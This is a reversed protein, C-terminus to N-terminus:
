WAVRSYLRDSYGGTRNARNHRVEEYRIAGQRPKRHKLYAAKQKGYGRLNDDKLIITQKINVADSAMVWKGNELCVTTFIREPRGNVTALVESERCINEQHRAPPIYTETYYQRAPPSYVREVPRYTTRVQVAGNKDRENGIVYGLMSGVATGILTSETNRGIAQGILAGGGAGFLFGNIGNEQAKIETHHFGGLLIAMILIATIKKMVWGGKTNISLVEEKAKNIRGKELGFCIVDPYIPASMVLFSASTPM